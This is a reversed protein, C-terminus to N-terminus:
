ILPPSELKELKAAQEECTQRLRCIEDILVTYPNSKNMIRPYCRLIDNLKEMSAGDRVAMVVAHLLVDASASCIRKRPRYRDFKFQPESDEPM